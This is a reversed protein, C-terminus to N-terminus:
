EPIPRPPKVMARVEPSLAALLEDSPTYGFRPAGWSPGYRFVSIRREGPNVREASGHSIADVFLIAEGAKLHVEVAGEITDVSDLGYSSDEAQPHPLRSKHSAPIVMTAGDGPGIDELAMLINIQGCMWENNRYEYQCRKISNWGGNHLSIAQGPGRINVFNEDVFLPGHLSDFNDQGGVYRKVLEIWALHDILCRFPEAEYVQQLNEGFKSEHNQRHVAGIWEGPKVSPRNDIWENIDTLQDDTLCKGLRLFGQLDFFFDDRPTAQRPIM